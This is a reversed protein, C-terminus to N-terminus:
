TTTKRPNRHSVDDSPPGLTVHVRDRNGEQAMWTRATQPCLLPVIVSRWTTKWANDTDSM